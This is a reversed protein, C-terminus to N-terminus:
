RQLGEGRLMWRMESNESYPHLNVIHHVPTLVLSLFTRRVGGWGREGWGGGRFFFVFGHLEIGHM